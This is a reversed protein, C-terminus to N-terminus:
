HEKTPTGHEGKMEEIELTMERLTVGPLTAAWPLLRREEFDSYLVVQKFLAKMMGQESKEDQSQSLKACSDLIAQHESRATRVLEQLARSKVTLLAPYLLQEEIQFHERLEREIRRVMEAKRDRESPVFGEYEAFLDKLHFHDYILLESPNRFLSGPPM